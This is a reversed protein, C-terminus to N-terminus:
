LTGRLVHYVLWSKMLIDRSGSLYSDATEQFLAQETSRDSSVEVETSLVLNGSVEQAVGLNM